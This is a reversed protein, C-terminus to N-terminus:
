PEILSELQRREEGAITVVGIKTEVRGDRKRAGHSFIQGDFVLSRGDKLLVKCMLLAGVPPPGSLFVGFRTVWASPDLDAYAGNELIKYDFGARPRLCGTRAGPDAEENFYFVSGLLLFHYFAWFANILIAPQREYLYRNAAWVVGAFNLFLMGMQPWLARYPLAATKSKDTVVFEAKLGLLARFAARVYVPFAVVGLFQGVALDRIRYNRRGLAVYFVALPFIAYPLFAFLYVSTPLYSTPIRFFLYALPCLMLVFYVFGVLYYSGSLTYEWMQVPRLRCRGLFIDLMMKRFVTLTGMAWRFQQKFFGVLNEPGLGFTSVHAYYLSKWGRNHLLYSTSFDETITSEDLGGVELLAARRFIVNTGCSFVADRSNKGECIYEYFVAQEFAAGRAIRSANLNSYFQPTQVFALRDAGKFLPVLTKLFSSIPRQDADFIAVFDEKLTELCDNVIGAKAGHRPRTRRFLVLGFERCLREAEEKYKEDSSDDLFYVTKRPYDLGKLASFTERLVAEPEHRAAVLVAVSPAGLPDADAAPPDARPEDIVRFVNIVYGFAHVFLFVECAVLLFSFIKDPTRYSALFFSGAKAIVYVLAAMLFLVTALLSSPRRKM